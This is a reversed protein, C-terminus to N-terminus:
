IRLMCCYAQPKRGVFIKPDPPFGREAPFSPGAAIKFWFEIKSIPELRNRNEPDKRNFPIVNNHRSFQGVPWGFKLSSSPFHCVVGLHAIFYFGGYYADLTIAIRAMFLSFAKFDAAEIRGPQAAPEVVIYEGAQLGKLKPARQRPPISIGNLQLARVRNIKDGNL